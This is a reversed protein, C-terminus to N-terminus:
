NGVTAYLRAHEVEVVLQWNVPVLKILVCAVKARKRGRSSYRLLQRDVGVNEVRRCLSFSTATLEITDYSRCVGAKVKRMRDLQGLSERSFARIRWKFMNFARLKNPRYPGGCVLTM